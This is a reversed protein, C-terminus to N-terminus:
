KECASFLLNPAMSGEPLLRLLLLHRELCLQGRCTKEDATMTALVTITNLMSGLKYQVVWQYLEVKLINEEKYTSMWFSDEGCASTTANLTISDEGCANIVADLTISDEGRVGVTANVIIIDEINQKM